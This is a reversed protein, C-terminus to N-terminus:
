HCHDWTNSDVDDLMRGRNQLSSKRNNRFFAGLSILARVASCSAARAALFAASLEEESEDLLSLSEEDLPLLLLLLPLPLLLLLLPDEESESEELSLSQACCQAGTHTHRQSRTTTLSKTTGRRSSCVAKQTHLFTYSNVVRRTSPAPISPSPTPNPARILSAGTRRQGESEQM